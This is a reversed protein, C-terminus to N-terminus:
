TGSRCLRLEGSRLDGQPAKQAYIENQGSAFFVYLTIIIGNNCLKLHRPLDYSCLNSNSNLLRCPAPWDALTHGAQM